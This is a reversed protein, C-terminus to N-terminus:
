YYEDPDAIGNWKVKIQGVVQFTMQDSCKPCRGTNLNWIRIRSNGCWWCIVDDELGYKFDGETQWDEIKTIFSEFLIDCDKCSYTGLYNWSSYDFYSEGYVQVGYGCKECKFYRKEITVPAKVM